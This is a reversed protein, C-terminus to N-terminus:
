VDQSSGPNGKKIREVLLAEEVVDLFGKMHIPKAVYGDCGALIARKREHPLTHATLAFLPILRTETNSKLKRTANWGDMEPLGLDMLILDPKQARAADVGDRGNVALFVDYGARELVIRVLEYNDMNDEVILIRGKSM